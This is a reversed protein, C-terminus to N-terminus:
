STFGLKHLEKRLKERCRFIRTRVTNLTLKLVDAIEEYTMGDVEALIFPVKFECPISVFIRKVLDRSEYNEAGSRHEFIDRSMIEFINKSRKNKRVADISRNIVVRYLYTKLSATGRFQGATEITSLCADQVIDKALEGDNTIRYAVSILTQRCATIGDSLDNCVTQTVM